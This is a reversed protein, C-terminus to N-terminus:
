MPSSFHISVFVTCVLISPDTVFVGLWIAMRTVLLQSPATAVYRADRKMDLHGLSQTM